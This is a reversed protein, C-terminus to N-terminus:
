KRESEPTIIKVNGSLNLILMIGTNIVGFCIGLLLGISLNPLTNSYYFYDSIFKNFLDHITISYFVSMFVTYLVTVAAYSIIRKSDYYNVTSKEVDNGDVNLITMQVFSTEEPLNITQTYGNGQTKESIDLVGISNNHRDFITISYKIEKIDSAIKCKIYKKAGDCYLVYQSMYKRLALRPECTISRGNEFVNKKIGRDHKHAPFVPRLWKKPLFCTIILVYFYSLLILVVVQSISFFISDIM